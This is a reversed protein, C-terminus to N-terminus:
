CSKVRIFVCAEVYVDTKVTENHHAVANVVNTKEMARVKTEQVLELLRFYPVSSLPESRECPNAASVPFILSFLIQM